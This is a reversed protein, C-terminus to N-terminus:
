KKHRKNFIDIFEQKVFDKKHFKTNFMGFDFIMHCGKGSKDYECYGKATYFEEDQTIGSILKFLPNNEDEAHLDEIVRKEIILKVKGGCLPCPKLKKEAM